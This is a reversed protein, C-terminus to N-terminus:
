FAPQTNSRAFSFTASIKPLSRRAAAAAKAAPLAAETAMSRACRLCLRESRIRLTSYFSISLHCNVPSFQSNLISLQSTASTPPPARSAGFTGVLSLHCNVPSFQSYASLKEPRIEFENEFPM